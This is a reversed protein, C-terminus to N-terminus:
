FAGEKFFVIRAEEMRLRQRRDRDPGEQIIRSDQLDEAKGTLRMTQRGDGPTHGCILAPCLKEARRLARITDRRSPPRGERGALFDRAQGSNFAIEKKGEAIV